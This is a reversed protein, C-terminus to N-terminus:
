LAELAPAMLWQYLIVATTLLSIVATARATFLQHELELMEKNQADIIRNLPATQNKGDTQRRQHYAMLINNSVDDSIRRKPIFETM